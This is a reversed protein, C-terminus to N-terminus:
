ALDGRGGGGGAQGEHKQVRRVHHNSRSQLKRLRGHLLRLGRYKNGPPSLMHESHDVVSLDVPRLQTPGGCTDHGLLVVALRRDTCPPAVSHRLATKCLESDAGGNKSLHGKSCCAGFAEPDSERKQTSNASGEPRTHHVAAIDAGAAKQRVHWISRQLSNWARKGGAIDPDTISIPCNNERHVSKM